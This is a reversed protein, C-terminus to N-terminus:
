FIGIFNVLIIIVALPAIYRALFRWLNYEFVTTDSLERKSSKHSMFWSAFVTFLLGSIPLLINSALFDINDFITGKWFVFSSLNNFSLITFIGMSWILLGM